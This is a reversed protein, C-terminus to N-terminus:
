YDERNASVNQVGQGFRRSYLVQLGLNDDVTPSSFIDLLCAIRGWSGLNLGILAALM